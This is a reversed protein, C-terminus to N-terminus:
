GVLFATAVEATLAPLIRLARREYFPVLSVRGEAIEGAVIVTILFRSTVFFVYVGVLGGFPGPVGAQCLVVTLVAVVRLGEIDPRYKVPQSGEFL